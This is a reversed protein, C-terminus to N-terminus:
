HKNAVCRRVKVREGHQWTKYVVRHKGAPCKVYSRLRRPANPDPQGYVPSGPVTEIVTPNGMPAMVPPSSPPIQTQAQYPLMLAAAVVIFLGWRM